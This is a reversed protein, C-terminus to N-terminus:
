QLLNVVIGGYVRHGYQTERSFFSPATDKARVAFFRYDGRIGVRNNLYYKVGGGVNGTLFNTRNTLSLEPREGRAEVANTTLRVFEDAAATALAAADDVIKLM